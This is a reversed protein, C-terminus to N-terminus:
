DGNDGEEAPEFVLPEKFLGAEIAHNILKQMDVVFKRGNDAFLITAGNMNTAIEVTRQRGEHKFTAKSASMCMYLSGANVFEGGKVRDTTKGDGGMSAQIEGIETEIPKAKVSKM